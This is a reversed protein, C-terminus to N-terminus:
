LIKAMKRTTENSFKTLCHHLPTHGACDKADTRAGLQILKLFCAMHDSQLLKIEDRMAQFEPHTGCLTRAGIVVHFISSVNLLSERRELLKNLDKTDTNNIERMM